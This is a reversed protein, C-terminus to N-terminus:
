PAGHVMSYIVIYHCVCAVVVLTHWVEHYGFVGPFPNPRNTGLVVAGGTYVLGGCALLVVDVLSIQHSLQPLALVFIWGLSIYCALGFVPKEALGTVALGLGIAAGVWAAVLLGGSAPGTMALLCLPTYCGAIMVFITGHDLRRMRRRGDPTWVRRHYTSSVAFLTTVAVAYIIAGVRARTSTAAAIVLIGAPVSVVFAVLHLWGRLLPPQPEDHLVVDPAPGLLAVPQPEDVLLNAGGSRSPHIRRGYRT